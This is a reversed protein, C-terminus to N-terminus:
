KKLLGKARAKALLRQFSEEGRTEIETDDLVFGRESAWQVAREIGEESRTDDIGNYVPADGDILLGRRRLLEIDHKLGEQFSKHTDRDDLSDPLKRGRSSKPKSKKRSVM